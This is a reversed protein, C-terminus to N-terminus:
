LSFFVVTLNLKPNMHSTRLDQLEGSLSSVMITEVLVHDWMAELKNMKWLGLDYTHALSTSEVTTPLTPIPM